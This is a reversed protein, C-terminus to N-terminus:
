SPRGKWLCRMLTMDDNRIQCNLRQQSILQEFDDQDRIQLVTEWPKEQALHRHIFWEAMADTMMLFLDDEQYDGQALQLQESLGTNRQPNSCILYPRNTFQEVKNLPFATLLQNNRIQFLCSDGVAMAQWQYSSEKGGFWNRFWSRKRPHGNENFCVGLFTSFAGVRAKEEAFWPLRDWQIEKQWEEQLPSLWQDLPVSHSNWVIPRSIFSEVLSQAWREAFSSETAGDAVAFHSNSYAFADEYEEATNGQKPLWFVQVSPDVPEIL